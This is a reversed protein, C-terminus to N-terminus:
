EALTALCQDPRVFQIYLEPVIVGCFLSDDKLCVPFASLNSTNIETSIEEAASAIESIAILRSGRPVSMELYSRELGSFVNRDM